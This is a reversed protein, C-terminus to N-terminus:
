GGPTSIVNVAESNGGGSLLVQYGAGSTTDVGVPCPSLRVTTPTGRMLASPISQTWNLATTAFTIGAPIEACRDQTATNYRCSSENMMGSSQQDPYPAEGTVKAKRPAGTPTQASVELVFLFIATAIRGMAEVGKGTAFSKRSFM